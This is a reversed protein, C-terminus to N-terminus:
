VPVNIGTMAMVQLAATQKAKFALGKAKSIATKQSALQQKAQKRLTDNYNEAMRKGIKYGQSKCEDDVTKEVTEIKKDVEKNAAKVFSSIQKDVENVIYDPGEEIYDSVKGLVDNLKNLGNTLTDKAKNLKELAKNNSEKKSKENQEEAAKDIQAGQEEMVEQLIEGFSKKYAVFAEQTYQQIKAPIALPIQVTKAVLKGAIKTTEQTAIDVAGAVINTALEQLLEPNKIMASATMYTGTGLSATNILAVSTKDSMVKNMSTTVQGSLFAAGKDVAGDKLQEFGDNGVSKKLSDVTFFAM